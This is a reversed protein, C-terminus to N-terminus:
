RKWYNHGDDTSIMVVVYLLTSNDVVSAERKASIKGQTIYKQIPNTQNHDGHGVCPAFSHVAFNNYL